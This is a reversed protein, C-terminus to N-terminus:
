WKIGRLEYEWQVEENWVPTNDEKIKQGLYLGHKPQETKPYPLNISGKSFQNPYNTRRNSVHGFVGQGNYTSKPDRGNM